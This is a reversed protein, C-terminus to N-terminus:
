VTFFAAALTVVPLIELPIVLKKVFSANTLILSLVRLICETFVNFIILGAFIVLGFEVSTEGRIPWRAKFVGGIVFTYIALMLLPNGFSWCIGM